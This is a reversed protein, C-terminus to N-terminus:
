ELASSSQSEQTSERDSTDMREGNCSKKSSIRYAITIFTGVPMEEVEELVRKNSSVEINDPM